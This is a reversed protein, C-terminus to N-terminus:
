EPEGTFILIPPRRTESPEIEMSGINEYPEVPLPKYNYNLLDRLQRAVYNPLHVSEDNVMIVVDGTRPFMQIGFTDGDGDIHTAQTQTANSQLNRPM